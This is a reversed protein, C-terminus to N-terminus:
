PNSGRPQGNATATMAHNAEDPAAYEMQLPVIQKGGDSGCAAGPMPYSRLPDGLGAPRPGNQGPFLKARQSSTAHQQLLSDDDESWAQSVGCLRELVLVLCRVLHRYPSDNEELSKQMKALAPFLCAHVLRDAEDDPMAAVVALVHTLHDPLESSEPLDYKALEGRMRVLFQGRVYDEGFLHWGVELACSPNVDFTRTFAEELEYQDCQEVFQGFQSIGAAAEPLESQVIVYLLEAAEVYQQSPYSLLRGITGLTRAKEIMTKDSKRTDRATHQTAIRSNKRM